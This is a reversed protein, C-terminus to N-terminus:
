YRDGVPANNLNPYTNNAIFYENTAKTLNKETRKTGM